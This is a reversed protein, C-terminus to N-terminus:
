GENSPHEKRRRREAAKRERAKRRIDALEDIQSQHEDWDHIHWGCGNRHLLGAAELESAIKTTLGLNRAAADPVHGERLEFRAVYCWSAILVWKAQYSLDAVKPHDPLDVSVKFWDV